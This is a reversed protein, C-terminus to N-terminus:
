SFVHHHKVPFYPPVISYFLFSYAVHVTTQESVSFVTGIDCGINSVRWECRFLGMTYGVM